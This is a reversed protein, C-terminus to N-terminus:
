SEITSGESHPVAEWYTAMRRVILHPGSSRYCKGCDRDRHEAIEVAREYTDCLGRLKGDRPCRVNYETVGFIVTGAQDFGLPLWRDTM